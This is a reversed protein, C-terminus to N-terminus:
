CIKVIIKARGDDEIAIVKGVAVQYQEFTPNSVAIGKVSGNDDVPVIYDGPQATTVNVPVQGSFAIRDVWQREAEIRDKWASLREANTKYFEDYRAVYDDNSENESQPEPKPESGIVDENAWTDGGVYSPNTSKVAFAIADLFVNTLEGNKNIGVIDGKAFVIDLSSKRMYEAYDTGAANVTGGANITRNTVSHKALKVHTDAANAGGANVCYFTSFQNQNVLNFFVNDEAVGAPPLFANDSDAILSGGLYFKPAVPRTNADFKVRANTFVTGFEFDEGSNGVSFYRTGATYMSNAFYVNFKNTVPNLSGEGLVAGRRTIHNPFTRANRSPTVPDNQVFDTFRFPNLTMANIVTLGFTDAVNEEFGSKNDELYSGLQTCDTCRRYNIGYRSNYSIDGGQIVCGQPENTLGVPFEPMEGDLYIGDFLGAVSPATEYSPAGSWRVFCDKVAILNAGNGLVVGHKKNYDFFCSQFVSNYPSLTVSTTGYAFVGYGPFSSFSCREAYV